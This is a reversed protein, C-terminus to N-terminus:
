KKSRCSCLYVVGVVLAVLVSGGGVFVLLMTTLSPTDDDFATCKPATDDEDEHSRTSGDPSPIPWTAVTNSGGVQQEYIYITHTHTEDIVDIAICTQLTDRSSPPVSPTCQIHRTGGDNGCKTCGDGDVVDSSAIRLLSTSENRSAVFEDVDM